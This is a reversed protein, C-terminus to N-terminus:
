SLDSRPALRVSPLLSLGRFEPISDIEPFAVAIVDIACAFTVGKIIDDPSNIGDM